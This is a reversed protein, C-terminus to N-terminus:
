QADLRCETFERQKQADIRVPEAVSTATTARGLPCWWVACYNVTDITSVKVWLTHESLTNSIYTRHAIQAHREHNASKNSNRILRDSAFVKRWARCAMIIQSSYQVPISLSHTVDPLPFQYVCRSDFEWEATACVELGVGHCNQSYPSCFSRSCLIFLYIFLM